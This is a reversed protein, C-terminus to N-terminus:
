QTSLACAGADTLNHQTWLEYDEKTMTGDRTKDPLRQIQSAGPQRHIRRLRVVTVFEQFLRKGHNAAKQERGHREADSNLLSLSAAVAVPPLQGFDGALIVAIGGFAEHARARVGSACRWERLRCHIQHVLVSSVMSVEDIILLELDELDTRLADLDDGELPILEGSTENVKALRFLDTLTRAGLGVNSAAVGTYTGVVVKRLGRYKLETILCKLTTTRGTGATGLLLALLNLRAGEKWQVAMEVFARQTPDLAELPPAEDSGPSQQCLAAYEVESIGGARAPLTWSLRPDGELIEEVATEAHIPQLRVLDDYPWMADWEAKTVTDPCQLAEDDVPLPVEEEAVAGRGFAQEYAANRVYSRSRHLEEEVEADAAGVAYPASIRVPERWKGEKVPAHASPPLRSRDSPEDVYIRKSPAAVVVFGFEKLVVRKLNLWLVAYPMTDSVSQLIRRQEMPHYTRWVGAAERLAKNALSVKVAFM